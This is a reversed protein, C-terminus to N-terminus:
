LPGKNDKNNNVNLKGLSFVQSFKVSFLTKISLIKKWVKASNLDSIFDQFPEFHEHLMQQYNNGTSRVTKVKLKTNNSKILKSITRKYSRKGLM